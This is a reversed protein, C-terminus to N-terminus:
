ATKKQSAGAQLASWIKASTLPMDLHEVGFERLADVVANVVAPPSGTAGAEGCGKAGLLNTQTPADEYLSINIPLLNDARPLCYDMFSATTLQGTEDYHTNELLAQGIGQVIGGVVQGKVILPNIIRGFDDVVTYNVLRAFGTDLDIEVECVHCGNPYNFGEREYRATEDLGSSEGASLRASDFSAAVVDPFSVNRDTGAVSYTGPTYDVDGEDAELLHSAIRKGKEIILRSALVVATGGFQLSRSGGHGGGEPTADTDAQRFSFHTPAMGFQAAAIQVFTTEHGQGNSQTGVSLTARGDRSFEIRAMDSPPGLTAELYYAVGIGRRANRKKAAAARKTFGKIDALEVARSLVTEFDGVDIERGLATVYPLQNPKILNKQRLKVPSMGIVGAAVDITRELLYIAEPRGAGRYADVPVTNTFAARVEMSIAPITYAGGLVAATPLTPILAGNTSLYAGLNAITDVALAVFRGAQDLGLRVTSVLDRAHADSVFSGNRDNIWKISHSLTECAFLMMAHEPQLQNKCGFGGGVDDARCRLKEKKWGFLECLLGQFGFPNQISGSFTLQGTRADRRVMVGRPEMSNPVLRNNVIDLTVIHAAGELAKRTKEADGVRWTFGLNGPADNPWIAPSGSDLALRADVVCGLPAYEVEILELADEAQRATKAVVMAVCEGVHRVRGVALGPRPTSAIPSGDAQTISPRLPLGVYGADQWDAGTFVAVVGPAARAASADIGSIDAHAHNSRLFVAHLVDPEEVDDVYKGAGTVFRQDELRPMPQGVGFKALASRPDVIEPSLLRHKTQM